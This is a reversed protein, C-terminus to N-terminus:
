EFASPKPATKPLVATAKVGRAILDARAKEPNQWERAALSMAVDIPLRVIQRDQDV